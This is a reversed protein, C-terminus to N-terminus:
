RVRFAHTSFLFLIGAVLLLAALAERSLFAGKIKHIHNLLPKWNYRIHFFAFITFLLASMNHAAMWFHRQITLEESQLEHNMIGSVPLFLFSIFMASSVFARRNFAKQPKEDIM